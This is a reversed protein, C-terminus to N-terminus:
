VPVEVTVTTGQGPTSQITLKGGILQAREQMGALGLKGAGALDGTREPLAFGKGNDQVTLTTKDPGFEVTVWARTAQSHKWVNRLAEQAIRFLVLETEPPFRKATGLVGIGIPIVFHRTLDSALWELAPLLGLDDLVSPRLDQAFRRVGDLIKATEQRLEELTETEKPSLRDNTSIFSDLRRSLAVLGQATDDHLERAIRRREEEQARTVQQLYFKLNAQMRKEATVDRAINQFARPKGDSIVLGTTLMCIAESGDKKILRQEYPLAVPQHELLGRRVERALNLSEESLFSKVNAKHLEAVSYGTLGECAKNAMQINGELDHVWIAENASEFLERYNKESTRLQEAMLREQQYLRANDIAMGIQGGISTLLEVEENQFQRSQRTSVSITGLVKGRAKLPVILLAQIGERKVIERTLRPDQSADAVLMPEGSDAVRGNFGEGVKLRMLGAAYEDSAGRCVKLELEQTDEHLLYVLAIELNMVELVKDAAAALVDDLELSRSIVASIANIAALRKENSMIAQVHSQLEQKTGELNILAQQRREQERNYGRFWLNVLGGIIIVGGTEFLADPVYQSILFVRPLMVLLAAALSILGAKNGLIFGAYSIPLLFFIREAGHRTLGLFGFLSPESTHLIQQPYHLVIGLVFMAVILWFHPSRVIGPLRSTKNAAM